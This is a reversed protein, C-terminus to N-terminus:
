GRELLRPPRSSGGSLMFITARPHRDFTARPRERRDNNRAIARAREFSEAAALSDGLRDHIRGRLRFFRDDKGFLTIARSVLELSEAPQEAEYARLALTFYTYADRVRSHAVRREFYRAADSRGLAGYANALGRVAAGHTADFDLARRHASVAHLLRGARAYLAALNAWFDPNDPVMEIAKRLYVVAGRRDGALGVSFAVNNYHLALAHRDDVPHRDYIGSTYAENFEVTVADRGPIGELRVNVHKNLVVMDDVSDYDPPVDVKQFGADLGVARALAVLLSSYSLCNGRKAAFTERATLNLYPAYGSLVYGGRRLARLLERMRAYDNPADLAPAAFARMAEDTALIDIDPREASAVPEGFIASGSLLETDAIRPDDFLATTQCASLGLVLVACAACGGGVAGIRGLLAM